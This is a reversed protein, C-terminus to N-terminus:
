IAATIDDTIEEHQSTATASTLTQLARTYMRNEAASSIVSLTVSLTVASFVASAAGFVLACSFVRAERARAQWRARRRRLVLTRGCLRSNPSERPRLIYIYISNEFTAGLQQLSASALPDKACDRVARWIGGQRRGGQARRSAWRGRGPGQSAWPCGLPGLFCLVRVLPRGAKGFSNWKGLAPGAPPGLFCSM